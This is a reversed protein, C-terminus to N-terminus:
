SIFKNNKYIKNIRYSPNKFITKIILLFMKFLLFIYFVKEKKM